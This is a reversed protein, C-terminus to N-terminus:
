FIVESWNDLYPTEYSLRIKIAEQVNEQSLPQDYKSIVQRTNDNWERMQNHAIEVPGRFLGSLSNSYGIQNASFNLNDQTWGHKPVNSLFKLELENKISFHRLLLCSLRNIKLQTNM